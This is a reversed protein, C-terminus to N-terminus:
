KSSNLENMIRTYLNETAKNLKDDIVVNLILNVKSTLEEMRSELSTGDELIINSAKTQISVQKTKGNVKEEMVYHNTDSM